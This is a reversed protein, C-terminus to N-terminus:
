KLSFKNGYQKFWSCSVGISSEVSAESKKYQQDRKSKQKYFAFQTIKGAAWLECNTAEIPTALLFICIDGLSVSDRVTPLKSDDCLSKIIKGTSTFPQQVRVRFLRDNSIRENEQLLGVLTTKRIHLMEGNYTIEVFKRHLKTCKLTGVSNDSEEYLPLCSITTGQSNVLQQKM